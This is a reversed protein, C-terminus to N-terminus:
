HAARSSPVLDPVPFHSSCPPWPPQMRVGALFCGEGRSLCVRGRFAPRPGASGTWVGAPEVGSASAVPVETAGLSWRPRPVRLGDPFSPRTPPFIAEEDLGQRWM